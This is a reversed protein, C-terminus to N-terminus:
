PERTVYKPCSKGYYFTGWDDLKRQEWDDKFGRFRIKPTNAM